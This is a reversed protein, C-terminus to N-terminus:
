DDDLNTWIRGWRIASGWEWVRWLSTGTDMSFFIVEAKGILNEEPIYGIINSYRSDTSNDRNDGMVFFHGRPVRYVRPSDTQSLPVEKLIEYAVGNDLSERYRAISQIRGFPDQVVFDKIRDLRMPQDNIYVQGALIQIQDGPLGIIRKIYDVNEDNPLRFVAIDGRQPEGLAARRGDFWDISLPFSFRSYGYSYKSVFVYDGVWLNPLMSGSPIYFPQFLFTRFVVAILLAWFLTTIIEFLGKSWDPKQINM